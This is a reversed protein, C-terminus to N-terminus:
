SSATPSTRWLTGLVSVSWSWSSSTLFPCNPSQAVSKERLGTVVLLERERGRACWWPRPCCFVTAPWWCGLTTFGTYFRIKGDDDKFRDVCFYLRQKEKELEQRLKANEASEKNWALDLRALEDMLQEVCECHDHRDDTSSTGTSTPESSPAASGASEKTDLSSSPASGGAESSTPPEKRKKPPPEKREEPAKRKNKGDDAPRRLRELFCDFKTPVSGQKLMRNQRTTQRERQRGGDHYDTEVFHLGCVRSSSNVVFVGGAEDRRINSVWIARTAPDSPFKHFSLGPSTKSNSSCLPVACHHPMRSSFVLSGVIALSALPRKDFSCCALFGPRSCGERGLPGSTMM